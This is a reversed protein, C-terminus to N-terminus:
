INITSSVEITETKECSVDCPSSKKSHNITNTPFPDHPNEIKLEIEDCNLEDNSKNSLVEVDGNEDM